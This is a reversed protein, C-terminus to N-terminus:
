RAWGSAPGGPSRRTRCASAPLVARSRCRRARRTAPRWEACRHRAPALWWRETVEAVMSLHSFIDKPQRELVQLADTRALRCIQLLGPQERDFIQEEPEGEPVFIAAPQLGDDRDLGTLRDGDAAFHERHAHLGRPACAEAEEGRQHLVVAALN